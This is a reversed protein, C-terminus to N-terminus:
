AGEADSPYLHPDPPQNYITSPFHEVLYHIIRKVSLVGVPKGSADLVPLHRYGGEEMRRIAAAIPETPQVSVPNPTMCSGVSVTLPLGPALVRRLLDRETFIGLLTEETSCVLLCGVAHERMQAVAEAVRQDPTIQLPPTPQLRCVNEVRLNRALEMM